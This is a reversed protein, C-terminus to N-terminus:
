FLYNVWFM